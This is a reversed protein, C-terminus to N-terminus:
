RVRGGENRHDPRARALARGIVDIRSWPRLPETARSPDARGASACRM